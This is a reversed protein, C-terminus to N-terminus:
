DDYDISPNLHRVTANDPIEMMLSPSYPAEGQVIQFKWDKPIALDEHDPDYISVGIHWSSICNEEILITAYEGTVVIGGKEGEVSVLFIFRNGYDDYNNGNTVYEEAFVDDSYGEFYITKM